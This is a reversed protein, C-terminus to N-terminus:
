YENLRSRFTEAVPCTACFRVTESALLSTLGPLCFRGPNHSSHHEHWSNQFRTVTHRSVDQGMTAGLMTRNIHSFCARVAVTLGGEASYCRLTRGRKGGAQICWRRGSFLEVGAGGRVNNRSVHTGDVAWRIFGSYSTICVCLCWMLGSNVCFVVLPCCKCFSGLFM